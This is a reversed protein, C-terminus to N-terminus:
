SKSAVSYFVQLLPQILLDKFNKALDLFL